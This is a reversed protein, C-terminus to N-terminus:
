QNKMSILNRGLKVEGRSELQKLLRSIVERSSNLDEAIEQHTIHIEKKGAAKERLYKILRQDLQTFAIGNLTDILEDFRARFSRMVFARWSPYRLLEEMKDKPLLLLRSETEAVARIKSRSDSECCAYTMVCSELPDVFYLFLEHGEDDLQSVKLRGELVIPIQTIYAGQDLMVQGKELEAYTANAELFEQLLPEFMRGLSEPLQTSM